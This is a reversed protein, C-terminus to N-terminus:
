EAYKSFFEACTYAQFSKNVRKNYLLLLMFDDINISETYIDM